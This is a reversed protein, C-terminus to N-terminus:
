ARWTRSRAARRRSATCRGPSWLVIGLLFVALIKNRISGAIFKM